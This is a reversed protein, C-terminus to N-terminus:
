EAPAEPARITPVKGGETRPLSEAFEVEVLLALDLRRVDDVIRARIAERAADPAVVAIVRVEGPREQVLQFRRLGDVSRLISRLTQPHIPVGSRSELWDTRRGQVDSLMPLSRGCECREPLRAALDGLRYNLVVTGRNVLNSVVVEGAEGAPLERGEADVIRIPCLDVNMHHGAQRECQWGIVGAEVAQYVGLVAVGLEDRLIRLVPESVADGTYSVAKPRHFSRGQALMHTYLAEILSGYSKVLHPRFADLERALEGPPDFLSLNRVRARLHLGLWQVQAAGDDKEWWNRPPVIVADRRRWRTGLLRALMPEMREFGLSRQLPGRVHRFIVIPQGTSGSTRLEGYRALPEARSTLYEPDAQLQERELLPLKALDAATEFDGPGLGLRRM